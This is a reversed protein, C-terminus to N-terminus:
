SVSCEALFRSALPFLLGVAGPGQAESPALGLSLTAWHIQAQLRETNYERSM